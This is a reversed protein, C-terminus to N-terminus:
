EKHPKHFLLSSVTFPTSQTTPLELNGTAVTDDAVLLNIAADINKIAFPENATIFFFREFDPADDLQYATTLQTEGSNSLPAADTGDALHPTLVGNGDVSVLYGFAKGAAVYTLQIRDQEHLVVNGELEINAENVLRYVTFCPQVGKLRVGTDVNPAPTLAIATIFVAFLLSVATTLKATHQTLGQRMFHAVSNLWTSKQRPISPTALRPDNIVRRAFPISPCTKKLAANSSNIAEIRRALDHDAAIQQRLERMQQPPLEALVYQELLWDTIHTM